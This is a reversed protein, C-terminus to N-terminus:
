VYRFNIGACGLQCHAEPYDKEPVCAIEGRLLGDCLAMMDTVVRERIPNFYHSAGRLWDQQRRGDGGNEQVSHGGLWAFDRVQALRPAAKELDRRYRAVLDLADKEPTIFLVIYGSGIADGTFLCRHARDAFVVSHPTHGPLEWTEVEVGGGLDIVSGDELPLLQPLPAGPASFASPYDEPHQRLLAIDEKHLYVRQFKDIWHMHDLHPHTVAVEVPLNTLRSVLGPLDGEGMGTDILLAKDRGEALYCSATFWDDIRWLGPKLWTVQFQTRRDQALLWGFAGDELAREWPNEPFLPGEEVVSGGAARLGMVLREVDVLARGDELVLPEEGEIPYARLPVDKLSRAQYPDGHGGVAWVGAFWLPYHSAMKWVWDAAAPTGTLTLRAEDVWPQQRLSWVWDALEEESLGETAVAALAAGGRHPALRELAGRAEDGTAALCVALPAAGEQSPEEVFYILKAGNNWFEAAKM